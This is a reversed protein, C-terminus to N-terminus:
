NSFTIASISNIIQLVEMPLFSLRGYQYHPPVLCSPGRRANSRTLLLVGAGVSRGGSLSKGNRRTSPKGSSVQCLILCLAISFGNCAALSLGRLM